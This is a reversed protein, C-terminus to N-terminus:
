LQDLIGLLQWGISWLVADATAAACNLTTRSHRTFAV